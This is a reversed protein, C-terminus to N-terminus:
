YELYGSALFSKTSPGWRLKKDIFHILLAPKMASIKKQGELAHKGGFNHFKFARSQNFHVKLVLFVFTPIRYVFVPRLHIVDNVRDSM